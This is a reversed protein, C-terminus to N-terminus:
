LFPTHTHKILSLCYVFIMSCETIHSSDLFQFHYYDSVHYKHALAYIANRHFNKMYTIAAQRNLKCKELIVIEWTTNNVIHESTVKFHATHIFSIILPQRFISYKSWTFIRLYLTSLNTSPAHQSSM